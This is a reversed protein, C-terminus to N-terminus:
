RMISKSILLMEESEISASAPENRPSTASEVFARLVGKSYYKSYLVWYRIGLGVALALIIGLHIRTPVDFADRNFYLHGIIVSGAIYFAASANRAFGYLHLWTRLTKEHSPSKAMAHFSSLWYNESGVKDVELQPFRRGFADKYLKVFQESFKRDLGLLKRFFAIVLNDILWQPWLFIRCFWFDGIIRSARKGSPISRVVMIILRQGLLGLIVYVLTQLWFHLIEYDSIVVPLLVLTNFLAFLYKYTAESYHRPERPLNLLYVVPYGEIGDLLVRDIIIYSITAVFHGLVYLLVIGAVSAALGTVFHDYNSPTCITKFPENELWGNLGMFLALSSALLVGPFLYGFFDYLDFPVFPSVDKM